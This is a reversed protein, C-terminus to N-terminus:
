SALAESRSDEQARAAAPSTTESSSIEGFYLSDTTAQDLTAPPGDFAVVGKKLAIVRDAYQRVADLHHLNAIVAIGDKQQIDVLLGMVAESSAPDLASIHEDALILKPQQALARAIAVRQQQGGSLTDARQWAQDAIGVRELLSMALERDSRPYLKFTSAFGGLYGLRGLLVNELASLRKVLNFGQFVMGISRRVGRVTAASSGTLRVGDVTVVGESPKVLGNIVRILSSKGAGSPGILVTLRSSDFELNVDKLAPAGNAYRHTVHELRIM